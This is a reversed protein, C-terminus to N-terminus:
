RSPQPALLRIRRLVLATEAGHVGDLAGIKESLYTYLHQTDRCCAIAFVNAQGTAAAAFNVERHGALARGATSLAAPSVTLCLM